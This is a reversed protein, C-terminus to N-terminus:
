DRILGAIQKGKRAQYRQSPGPEPLKVPNNQERLNERQIQYVFPVQDPHPLIAAGAAEMFPAKQIPYRIEETDVLDGDETTGAEETLDVAMGVGHTGDRGMIGHIM